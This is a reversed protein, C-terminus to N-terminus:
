QINVIASGLRGIQVAYLGKPVNIHQKFSTTAAPIIFSSVKAGGCSYVTCPLPTTTPTDFTIVIVNDSSKIRIGSAPKHSVEEIKDLNMLYLMGAYVDLEGYGYKNNPYSLSADNHSSTNAIVDRVREPTLDPFAEVWLAIGGAAAPCAMSTGSNVNWVYTRDNYQFHAVDNNVSGASPNNEYYYSSNSSIINAGPAVVDPKILGDLTPGESSFSGKVGGTGFNSTRKVGKYNTFEKVYATAGVGIVRPACGPKLINGGSTANNGQFTGYQCFAKVDADNGLDKIVLEIDANYGISKNSKICIDFATRSEDYCNPLSYCDITYNLGKWNREFFDNKEELNGANEGEKITEFETYFPINITDNPTPDANVGHAIIQISVPASCDLVVYQQAGDDKRRKLLTRVESKEATKHMFSKNDGENGVSAVLIRGEGLLQQLSEQELKTEGLLDPFSGESFSIVCPKGVKKAYDFIYKFGLIDLADTYLYELEKPVLDINDGTLNAVLCIDADPAMGMYESDYGMGAAIGATHTGHTQKHGDTSHGLALLVDQGVFEKGVPMDKNELPASGNMDSLDLQDWLAKIRLRNDSSYSASTTRRLFTPHTIDFGIDMVGMVVGEGTFPQPLTSAGEHVKEANVFARTKDMTVQMTSRKAEIREISTMSCVEDLRAVPLTVICVDGIRAHCKGGVDGIAREADEGERAKVFCCIRRSDEESPRMKKAKM